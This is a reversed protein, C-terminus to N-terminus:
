FENLDWFLGLGLVLGNYNGWVITVIKFLILSNARSLCSHNDLLQFLGIIIINPFILFPNTSQCMLILDSNKLNLILEVGGAFEIFILKVPILINKASIM